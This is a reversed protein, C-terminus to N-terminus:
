KFIYKIKPMIVDINDKKGTIDLWLYNQEKKLGYEKEYIEEIKLNLKKVRSPMYMFIITKSNSSIALIKVDYEKQFYDVFNQCTMPGKIDIIDWVTWGPPVAKSPGDFIENYEQDEKHIVDSPNNIQYFNDSTNFYFNKILSINKTSLLSYLQMCAFGTVTATTSAIAPVIKGAIMKTKQEDSKPIRYNEARLNTCLNVFFVHKNSDNDKEFKEPIIKNKEIKQIDFNNLFNKISLIEDLEEERSKIQNSPPIFEPFNIKEITKRIFDDDEMEINISKALLFSYYKAFNFCNENNVNFKIPKPIRKSGSWFMSGDENKLDSPFEHLLLNINYDFNIYYIDVAKKLIKEFNKEEILQLLNQIDKLKNIQISTTEENQISTYYAEKDNFFKLLEEVPLTFFDYFKSLAWEICHEIKSPFNRLTCLPISFEPIVKNDNYCSTKFPVFVQCNGETGLTGTDILTKTYKTCQNDIYKRANRSDVATFIFDQKKWFIEDFFDENKDSVFLELDKCNFEKNMLKAQETAIKSKPKGVDKRHFLFQRNLNSIEILDNDTIITSADKETSIGMLSFNKIFECGLAGAGIIFINLNNFKKQVDNGFIAIQEDYRSGILNRDINEQLDEVSEFFDFWLWQNIPIYKGTVKIIEQSVIGGLFSCIPSIECKSWRAVNMIIKEDFNEINNIWEENNKKAEEYFSKAYKLVEKAKEKVNIEPLENKEDYYKHIGIFACHLLENRGEKSYDNIEPINELYPTYFCESLKKYNKEQSSIVEEVIGGCKYNEYSYKDELSFEKNSIYKIKRPNGDNLDNIGEVESFKVFNGTSLSFIDRNRQDITFVGSKDINQIFYMKREKGFPDTIIHNNGFDCFVFSSLGLNLCYIFNVNKNHCKESMSFLYKTNVIETIIIVHFNEINEELKERFIDVNVYTNLEKLKPLCSVDRPKGINEESLFFNNGLDNISTINQDLIKVEKVGSLIINKTIEVGLGRMGIILIKLNQLKRMTEIGLTKIQRSYLNTDVKNM